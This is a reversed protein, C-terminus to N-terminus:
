DHGDKSQQTYSLFLEELRNAKNRMSKVKVGHQYFLDFVENLSGDGMLDVRCTTADEITVNLSESNLLRPDDLLDPSLPSLLDFVFSDKKLQSILAKKSMDTILSGKDMIAIRECLHEAEELYHTTLVITIKEHNIQQLFGWMSRRLEIDVGATPEDLILIDPEHMMARAIMLRRKMGGSLSRATHNRKHWLDLLHLYKEARKKSERRTLGYFGAQNMLIDIVREFISFNFEQPVTGLCTKAMAFSQDIDYGSILVRGSTKIVLSNLIGILTTKGAGNPGLLGLFEGPNVHLSFDKLAHVGNPYIKSLHDLELALM